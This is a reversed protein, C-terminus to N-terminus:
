SAPVSAVMQEIVAEDLEETLFTALAFFVGDDEWMYGVVQEGSPDAIVVRTVEHDGVSREEQEAEDPLGDRMDLESSQTFEMPIAQSMEDAPAQIFSMTITTAEEEAVEDPADPSAMGMIMHLEINEPVEEPQRLAFPSIDDAEEFTLDFFMGPQM